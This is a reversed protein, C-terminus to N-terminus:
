HCAAGEKEKEKEKEDDSKFGPLKEKIKELFGKKEKGEAADAPPPPPPVEVEEAAKKGGHPPHDYATVPPVEDHKEVPVSTDECPKEEEKGKDGSVKDKIKDKLGKKKKKKEGHEDVEEEDSSSSSSSSSSRHLKEILSEHKKEEGDKHDEKKEEGVHVKQEFDHAIKEDDCKKDEDDKKGFGFLGRDTSEVAPPCEAM